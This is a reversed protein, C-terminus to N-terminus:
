NRSYTNRLSNKRNDATYVFEDPLCDVFLIAKELMLKETLETIIAKGQFRFSHTEISMDADTKTEHEDVPNWNSVAPNGFDTVKKDLLRDLDGANYYSTFTRQQYQIMYNIVKAPDGTENTPTIFLGSFRRVVM